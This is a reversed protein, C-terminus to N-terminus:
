ATRVIREKYADLVQQVGTTTSRRKNMAAYSLSMRSQRSKQSVDPPASYQDHESEHGELGEKDNTEDAPNSKHEDESEAM